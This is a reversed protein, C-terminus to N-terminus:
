SQIHARLFWAMKEHKLILDELLSITGVDHQRADLNDHQLRLERVVTEHDATLVEIMGKADPLASHDPLEQLRTHEHFGKMSGISRGNLARVREAITDCIAVLANYQEDLMLHLSRFDAGSINWHCNLTKVLLVFEDSLLQNLVTTVEKRHVDDLGISITGM